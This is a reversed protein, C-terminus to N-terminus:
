QKEAGFTGQFITGTGPTTGAGGETFTQQYIGGLFKADEGFFGGATDIGNVNGAFTNGDITAKIDIEGNKPMYTTGATDFKLKGDLSGNVFDATFNSTGDVKPGNRNGDSLHLKEMYTAVGSYQFKGDNIGNLKNYEALEKLYDMDKLNTANGQVYVNSVRALTGLFGHKPDGYVHGIQMQSDFNKYVSSYNLDLKVPGQVSVNDTHIKFDGAYVADTSSSLNVSVSEKVSDPKTMDARALMKNYSTFNNGKRNDVPIVSGNVKVTETFDSKDDRITLYGVADDTFGSKKSSLANSQFGTM